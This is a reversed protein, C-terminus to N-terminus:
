PGKFKWVETGFNDNGNAQFFLENNFVLLYSPSANGATNLDGVLKASAGDFKWLEIGKGDNSIASFYLAGNFVTLFAPAADGTEPNIDTVRTPNNTGDYKWLEVGKGDNSIASFYLANNFLTLYAPNSNGADPNIDTVRVPANTGDFKYIEVGKGDTSVASFYLANNFVALHSPNSDGPGANIDAVLLTSTGDTRWLEVGTSDGGKASFYLLNNFVAMYSPNADAAGANIEAVRGSDSGNWRWLEVGNGDGGNARFYLAGNYPTLYAPDSGTPGLNIDDALSPLKTTPDYRWLEAGANNNGTARFFLQGNFNALFAPDSSNAGPHIDTVREFPNVVPTVASVDMSFQKTSADTGTVTIIVNGSSPVAGSFTLTADQAKMSSGNPATIGMSLTNAPANVKVTLTQNQAVNLFYRISSTGTIAGTVTTGTQGTPFTITIDSTGPNPNPTIPTSAPCASLTTQATAAGGASNIPIKLCNGVAPSAILRNAAKLVIVDANFRTGINEWTDGLQAVYYGACRPGYITGKSGINPVHVAMDPLIYHANPIQPNAALTANIDAGYCRAIQYLWEGSTVTHTINSGKTFNGPSVAGKTVTSTAPQSTVGGGTATVTNVISTANLDNQNVPYQASCSISEGPGLTRNPVDCNVPSAQKNDTVRFQDPGIAAAGSNKIVYSYTIVQGVASYTTTNPTVTVTLANNCVTAVTTTVRNSAVGAAQAAANSVVRCANLDAQQISYTSACNLSEGPDLNNDLNGVSNVAACAPATTKDDIVAIPGAVAIDGSNSVSYTYNITQGVTNFASTGNTAVVGLTLSAAEGSAPGIAPNVVETPTPTVGGICASLMFSFIIGMTLIRSIYKM